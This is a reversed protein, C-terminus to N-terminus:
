PVNRYNFINDNQLELLFENPSLEVKTLENDEIPWPAAWFFYFQVYSCDLSSGEADEEYFDMACLQPSALLYGEHACLQHAIPYSQFWFKAFRNIHTVAQTESFIQATKLSKIDTIMVHLRVHELDEVNRTYNGDSFDCEEHVTRLLRAAEVLLPLMIDPDEIPGEQGLAKGAWSVRIVGDIFIDYHFVYDNLTVMAIEESPADSVTSARDAELFRRLLTEYAPKPDLYLSYVTAM